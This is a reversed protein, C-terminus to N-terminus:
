IQNQEFICMGVYLMITLGAKPICTFRVRNYRLHSIKIIFVAFITFTHFEMGVYFLIPPLYVIYKTFIVSMLKLLTLTVFEVSLYLKLFLWLPPNLAANCKAIPSTVPKLSFM